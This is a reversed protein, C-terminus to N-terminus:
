ANHFAGCLAQSCTRPAGAARTHAHFPSHPRCCPPPPSRWGAAAPVCRTGHLASLVDRADAVEICTDVLGYQTLLSAELPTLSDPSSSALLLTTAGPSCQDTAPGGEVGAGPNHRKTLRGGGGGDEDDDGDGGGDDGRDWGWEHDSGHPPPRTATRKRGGRARAGFVAVVFRQGTRYTRKMNMPMPWSDPELPSMTMPLPKRDPTTDPGLDFLAFPLNLALLDAVAPHRTAEAELVAKVAAIAVPERQCDLLGPVNVVATVADASAGPRYLRLLYDDGRHRGPGALVPPLGRRLDWLAQPLPPLCEVAASPFHGLLAVFDLPSEPASAPGPAGHHAQRSLTSPPPIPSPPHPIPSPPHPIPSPSNRRWSVFPPSPPPPDADRLGLACM